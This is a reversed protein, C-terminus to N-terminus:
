EDDLAESIAEAERAPGAQEPLDGVKPVALLQDELGPVTGGPPGAKPKASIKPVAGGKGDGKDGAALKRKSVISVVAPPQSLEVFRQEEQRTSDAYGFNYLVSDGKREPFLRSIRSTQPKIGYLLDAGEVLAGHLLISRKAWRRSREDDNGRFM